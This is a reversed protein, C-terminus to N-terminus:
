WRRRFIELDSDICSSTSDLLGFMGEGGKITTMIDKIVKKDLKTPMDYLLKREINDCFHVTCLVRRMGPFAKKWANIVALNGDMVITYNKQGELSLDCM